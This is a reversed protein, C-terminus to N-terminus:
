QQGKSKANMSKKNKSSIVFYVGLIVLAAAIPEDWRLTAQKLFIAVVSAIIPIAYNYMSVVTVSLSKMALPLLMYALASPFVAIFVAILVPTTEPNTFLKSEFLEKICIPLTFIFAFLYIWRLMIAPNYKQSINRTYILYIGYLLASALILINGTMASNNGTNKQTLIVLLAGALAVFVGLSKRKTIKEKFVFSSVILVMIPTITLIISADIPSTKFISYGYLFFFVSLGITGGLLFTIYDKKSITIKDKVFLSIVWCVIMGGTVRLLTYSFPDLWEGLIYKTAPINLAFFIAALLASIHGILSGSSKIKM